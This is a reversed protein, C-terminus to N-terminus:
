KKIMYEQVLIERNNRILVIYQTPKLFSLDAQKTGSATTLRTDYLQLGNLDYIELQVNEMDTTFLEYTFTAKQGVPNPIIELTAKEGERNENELQVEPFKAETQTFCNGERHSTYMNISLPGSSFPSQPTFRLLNFSVSKIVPVTLSSSTFFIMAEPLV